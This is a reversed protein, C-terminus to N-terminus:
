CSMEAILRSFAQKPGKAEAEKADVVEKKFKEREWWLAGRDDDLEKIRKQLDKVHASHAQEIDLVTRHYEGRAAEARGAWEPSSSALSTLREELKKMEGLETKFGVQPHEAAQLLAGELEVVGASTQRVISVEMRVEARQSLRILLGTVDVVAVMEEERVSGQVPELAEVLVDADNSIVREGGEREEGCRERMGIASAVGGSGLLQAAHALAPPNPPSLSLRLARAVGTPRPAARCTRGVPPNPSSPPYSSALIAISHPTTVVIQRDLGLTTLASHLSEM